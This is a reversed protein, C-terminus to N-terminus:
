NSNRESIACASHSVGRMAWFYDQNQCENATIIKGDATVLQIQAVMDAAYGYKASLKGHGGNSIHGAVGVTGTYGGVVSLGKRSAASYVDKWVHGAAVTVFPGNIARNCGTPTFSTDHWRM